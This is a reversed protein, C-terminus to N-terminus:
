SLEIQKGEKMADIAESLVEVECYKAIQSTTPLKSNTKRALAEAYKIQKGTTGSFVKSRELSFYVVEKVASKQNIIIENTM